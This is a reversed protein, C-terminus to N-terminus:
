GADDEEEDRNCAVALYIGDALLSYCREIEKEQQQKTLMPSRYGALAFFAERIIEKDTM